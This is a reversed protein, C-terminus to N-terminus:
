EQIGDRGPATEDREDHLLGATMGRGGSNWHRLARSPGLTRRDRTTVNAPRVALCEAHRLRRSRLREPLPALARDRHGTPAALGGARLGASALRDAVDWMAGCTVRDAM